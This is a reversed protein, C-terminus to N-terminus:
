FSSRTSKIKDWDSKLSPNLDSLLEYIKEKESSPAESYINVLEDRKAETFIQPLASMSKAQAATQLEELATTVKARGRGVNSAMDDLGLRHYDYMMQRFPKMSEDMYDTLIGHRNRNDDYAKWGTESFSQAANVIAEANQLVATGGMPAMTDMDFGIILYAYYALLATLNNDIQEIRFELQDFEQYTFSIEQDRLNLIPTTYNSAYVPRNSQVTFEGSFSGDDSYEKVTFLLSCTIRENIAYQDNTWARENMFATMAEQLNSFIATNTGQIQQYDVTVKCNLEQAM